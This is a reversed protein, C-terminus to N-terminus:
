VCQHTRKDKDGLHKWGKPSLIKRGGPYSEFLWGKWIRTSILYSNTSKIYYLFTRVGLRKSLHVTSEMAKKM